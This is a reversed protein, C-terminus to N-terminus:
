KVRPEDSDTDEGLFVDDVAVNVETVELGTMRQVRDIVNKRVSEAVDPISVGYEAVLDVDIASQREGVEVRVGQTVNPGGGVPLKEKLSGFARASGSGMQHVGAIERAAIGAIKAVVSDAISTRGQPGVLAQGAGDPAQPVMTSQQSM